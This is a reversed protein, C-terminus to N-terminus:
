FSKALLSKANTVSAGSITLCNRCLREPRSSSLAAPCYSAVVICAMASPSQPYFCMLSKWLYPLDPASCDCNEDMRANKCFFNCFLYQQCFKRIKRSGCEWINRKHKSRLYLSVFVHRCLKTVIEANSARQSSFWRHGTSERVFPRHHPANNEKNNAQLLQKLSSGIGMAQSTM